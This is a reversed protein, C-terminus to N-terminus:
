GMVLEGDGMRYGICYYINDNGLVRGKWRNLNFARNMDEKRITYVGINNNKETSTQKNFVKKFSDKITIEGHEKFFLKQTLTKKPLGKAKMITSIKGNKDITKNMYLKSGLNKELIVVGDKKYDNTM